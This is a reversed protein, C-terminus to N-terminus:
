HSTSSYHWSNKGSSGLSKGKQILLRTSTAIQMSKFTRKEKPIAYRTAKNPTGTLHKVAVDIENRSCNGELCHTSLNKVLYNQFLEWNAERYTINPKIKDAESPGRATLLVLSHHFTSLSGLTRISHTSLVNNVIAFDLIETGAPNRDLLHKPQSPASINYNSKYYHNLLFQGAANNQGAWTKPRSIV